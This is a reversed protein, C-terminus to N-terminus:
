LRSFEAAYYNREAKLCLQKFKNRCITFKLKNESNPNKMYKLYLKSKKRYSNFLARTKRKLRGKNNFYIIPYAKSYMLASLVITM